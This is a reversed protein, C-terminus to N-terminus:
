NKPLINFLMYLRLQVIGSLELLFDMIYSCILIYELFYACKYLNGHTARYNQKLYIVQSRELIRKKNIPGQLGLDIRLQRHFTLSCLCLM